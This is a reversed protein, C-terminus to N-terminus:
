QVPLEQPTRKSTLALESPYTAAGALETHDPEKATSSSHQDQEVPYPQHVNRKRRYYLFLGAAGILLVAVGVGV